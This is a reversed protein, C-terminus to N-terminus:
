FNVGESFCKMLMTRAKKAEDSPMTMSFKAWRKQRSTCTLLSPPSPPFRPHSLQTAKLDKESIRADSVM